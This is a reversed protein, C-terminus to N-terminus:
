ADILTVGCHIGVFDLICSMAMIVASVSGEAPIIVFYRWISFRRLSYRIMKKRQSVAVSFHSASAGHAIDSVFLCMSSAWVVFCFGGFTAHLSQAVTSFSVNPSPALM